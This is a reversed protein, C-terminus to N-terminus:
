KRELLMTAEPLNKKIAKFLDNLYQTPINVEQGNQQLTISGNYYEATIQIEAGDDFIFNFSPVNILVTEM